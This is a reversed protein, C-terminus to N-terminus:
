HSSYFQTPQIHFTLTLKSNTRYSISPAATTNTVSHCHIYGCVTLILRAAWAVLVVITSQLRRNLPSINHLRHRCRHYWSRFLKESTDLWFPSAQLAAATISARCRAEQKKALPSCSSFPASRFSVSALLRGAEGELM